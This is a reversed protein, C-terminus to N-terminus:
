WDPSDSYQAVTKNAQQLNDKKFIISVPFLCDSTWSIQM